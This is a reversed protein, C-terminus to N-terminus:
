RTTKSVTTARAQRHGARDTAVITFTQKGKRLAPTSIRYTFVGGTSGAQLAAVLKTTKYKTCKVTRGHKRCTARYATKVSATVGKIGSSPSPDWVRVTVTCVRRVTCHADAVTTTPAATDVAQTVPPAQVPTSPTVPPTSPTTVIQQQPVVGSSTMAGAIFSQVAPAAVRTYVGPYGAVACGFGWSVIGVLSWTGGIQQVLPGGSDGQCADNGASGACVQTSADFRTRYTAACVSSAPVNGNVQLQDPTPDDNTCSSVSPDCAPRARTTGWGSLTLASGAIPAYGAPALPIAQVAGPTLTMPSVTLVAADGRMNVSTPGWDPDVAPAQTVTLLQTPAAPAVSLDKIGVYVDIDGPRVASYPYTESTVCHAATLVHQADLITGGCLDALEHGQSDYQGTWILLLAQWPVDTAGAAVGGVVAAHARHKPKAASAGAAAPVALLAACLAVLALLVPRPARRMVLFLPM